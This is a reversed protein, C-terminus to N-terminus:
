FQGRIGISTPSLELTVAPRDPDTLVAYLFAGGIAAMVGGAAITIGSPVRLENYSDADESLEPPCKDDPCDISGYQAAAITGLTAGIVIALIGSGTLIAGALLLPEGTEPGAASDADISGDASIDENPIGEGSVNGASTDTASTKAHSTEATSTEATSSEATSSEATSTEATSTEAAPPEAAPPKGAPTEATPTEAGDPDPLPEDARATPSLVVPVLFVVLVVLTALSRM